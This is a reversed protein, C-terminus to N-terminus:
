DKKEFKERWIKQIKKDFKKGFFSKNQEGNQAIISKTGERLFTM